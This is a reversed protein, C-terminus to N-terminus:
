RVPVRRVEHRGNMVVRVMGAGSEGTVELRAIEEQMEQVMEFGIAQVEEPTFTWVQQDQVQSQGAHVANRNAASHSTFKRPRNHHQRRSAVFDVKDDGNVDGVFLRYAGWGGAPHVQRDGFTFGGTGDSLAIYTVNASGRASWVLDDNGDGDMDGVAPAALVDM